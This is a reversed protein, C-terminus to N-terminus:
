LMGLLTRAELNPHRLEAVTRDPREPDRADPPILIVRVYKRSLAQFYSAPVVPEREMPNHVILTPVKPAFLQPPNPEIFLYGDRIARHAIAVEPMELVIRPASILRIGHRVLSNLLETFEPWKNRKRMRTPDITVILPRDDGGVIERLVASIGLYPVSVPEPTGGSAAYPQRAVSRCNPCGGCSRQPLTEARAGLLSQSGVRYANAFIEGLDRSGGLAELMLSHGSESARISEKRAPEVIRLWVDPDLHGAGLIEVVASTVYRDFASKVEEQSDQIASPPAEADLRILGARTMLSLTRLNWAENEESRQFITSRRSDLSVRYTRPGLEEAGDLMAVWRSLGLEVSIVKRASLREAISRDSPSHLLLAISARGDRGGRGVEQYYRDISEPVCAHIVSRVDSQDVGLGFASTGVVLDIEAVRVGLEPALADGRWKEIVGSREGASTDGTVTSIRRNGDLRLALTVSLADAQTSVYIVSPRPLHRVAEVVLQLREPASPCSQIWYEPEPRIFVSALYEVPGPDGFLTVLTELADDTITASMLLTKFPSSGSKSAVRLLDRRFGSLAQFEPRFDVGWSAVTHAEDIVFYRLYGANAAAYLSPALSSILSEPSTFVIRQTGARIAARLEAREGEPQGSFYAFRAPHARNPEAASLHARVAREQDLALSTTPVVVATVGQNGSNVLAPAIAVASKGSGTPLNILITASHSAALVTRIAQQQAASTYTTFGPGMVDSLFPDGAVRLDPRRHKMSEAAVGVQQSNGWNPSWRAASVVLGGNDAPTTVCSAEHWHNTSPWGNGNPLVLHQDVGQIESELRLVQRVLAAIDRPGVSEPRVRLLDIADLLRSHPKGIGLPRSVGQPWAEISKAVSAFPSDTLPLGRFARDM